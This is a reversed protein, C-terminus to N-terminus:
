WLYSFWQTKNECPLWLGAPIEGIWLNMFYNEDFYQAFLLLHRERCILSLDTCRRVAVGGQNYWTVYFCLRPWHDLLCISQQRLFGLASPRQLKVHQSVSTAIVTNVYLWSSDVCTEDKYFPEGDVHPNLTEWELYCSKLLMDGDKTPALKFTLNLGLKYRVLQM